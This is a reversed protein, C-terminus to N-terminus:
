SAHLSADNLIVVQLVAMAPLPGLYAILDDSRLAREFAQAGAL